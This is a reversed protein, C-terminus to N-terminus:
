LLCVVEATSFLLNIMCAKQELEIASREKYYVVANLTNDTPIKEGGRVLEGARFYVGYVCSPICYM